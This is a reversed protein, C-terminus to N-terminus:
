KIWVLHETLLHFLINTLNTLHGPFIDSMEDRTMAKSRRSTGVDVTGTLYRGIYRYGANYLSLAKNYNLVTSTDCAIASRDPNSKSLLLSMWTTVDGKDTIPLVHFAQM